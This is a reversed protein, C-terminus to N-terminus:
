RAFEKVFARKVGTYDLAKKDKIFNILSQATITYLSTGEDAHDFPYSSAIYSSLGVNYTRTEDLPSGDYNSLVVEIAEGEANTKVTYNIGSVQLDLARERNYSPLILSRIEAPTLKFLIIENGFPDLKFVDKITIDGMQWEDTRIGGANQFAIEIPEVTTMADTMMSGLEDAGSINQVATGIMQNLEKNDNYQDVMQMVNADSTSQQIVNLIQATKSVLVGDVIKLTIMSANKLGSGAQMILVGNQLMPNSVLTHSHGGTIVDIDGWANALEVDDEIGLHTLAILVQCSDRLPRMEGIKDKYNTFTLGSLRSPHSDPLGSENIQIFSVVGVKSGDFNFFTYPKFNLSDGPLMSINACLYPFDAQQQRKYLTAQGYDFEHNGLACADFGTQNMLAVMPYGKDPYQDVVPNGTFNDGASFVLVHEYRSRISDALAKFKPFNDIKAHMDNVSLVVITVTDTPTNAAKIGSILAIAIFFLFIKKLM